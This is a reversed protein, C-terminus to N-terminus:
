DRENGGGGMRYPNYLNISVNGLKPLNGQNFPAPPEPVPGTGTEFTFPFEFENSLQGKKDMVAVIVTIQDWEDLSSANFSFTNWQIYGLFSKQFPPKLYIWDTPYHGYGTQRVTTVISAM